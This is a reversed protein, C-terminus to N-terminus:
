REPGFMPMPISGVVRNDPSIFEYYATVPVLSSTAGSIKFVIDGKSGLPTAEENTEFFAKYYSEPATVFRPRVRIDDPNGDPRGKYKQASYTFFSEFMGDVAAIGIVGNIELMTERPKDPNSPFFVRVQDRYGEKPIGPKALEHGRLTNAINCPNDKANEDEDAASGMFQADTFDGLNGYKICGNVARPNLDNSIRPETAVDDSPVYTGKPGAVHWTVLLDTDRDFNGVCSVYRRLKGVEEVWSNTVFNFNGVHHEKRTDGTPCDAANSPFAFAVLPVSLLALAAYQFIKM